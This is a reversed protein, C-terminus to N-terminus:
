LMTQLARDAYTNDKVYNCKFYMDDYPQLTQEQPDSNIGSLMYTVNNLAINIFNCAYRRVSGYYFISGLIYQLDNSSVSLITANHFVCSVIKISIDSVLLFGRIFMINELYVIVNESYSVNYKSSNNQFLSEIIHCKSQNSSPNHANQGKAVPSYNSCNEPVSESPQGTVKLTAADNEKSCQITPRGNYGIM